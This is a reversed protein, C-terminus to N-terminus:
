RKGLRRKLLTLCRQMTQGDMTYESPSARGPLDPDGTTLYLRLMDSRPLLRSAERELEDTWKVKRVLEAALNRLLRTAKELLEVSQAAADGPTMGNLGLHPTRMWNSHADGIAASSLATIANLRGLREQREAEEAEVKRQAVRAEHVARIARIAGRVPLGLDEAGEECEDKLVALTTTLTKKLSRWAADGEIAIMKFSQGGDPCHEMWSEVDFGQREIDFGLLAISNGLNKLAKLRAVREAADRDARDRDIQRQRLQNSRRQTQKWAWGLNEVIGKAALFRLFGLVAQEAGGEPLLADALVSHHEQSNIGFQKTIWDRKRFEAIVSFPMVGGYGPVMDRLIAARWVKPHISFYGAGVAPGELLASDGASSVDKVEASDKWNSALARQRASAYAAKLKEVQSLRKQEAVAADQKAIRELEDRLQAAKRNYIWERPASTLIAEDLGAITTDRPLASLDIEVSSIGAAAIKARKESGCRHTVYIEVQMRDSGKELIVDPITEGDMTELKASDFDFRKAERITKVRTGYAAKVPPLVLSKRDNLLQEAYHHLATMNGHKCSPAVGDAREAATLRAHAFHHAIDSEPKRAVLKRGCNEAPCQCGCAAGRDAQSIHIVAGDWRKGFALRVGDRAFFAHGIKSVATLPGM